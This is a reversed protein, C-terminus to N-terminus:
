CPVRLMVQRGRSHNRWSTNGGTTKSADGVLHRFRRETDDGATLSNCALLFALRFHSKKKKGMKWPVLAVLHPEKHRICPTHKNISWKERPRREREKERRNTQAIPLLFFIHVWIETASGLPVTRKFVCSSVSRVTGDLMQLCKCAYAENNFANATLKSTPKFTRFRQHMKASM